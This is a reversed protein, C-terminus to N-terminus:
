LASTRASLCRVGQVGLAEEGQARV